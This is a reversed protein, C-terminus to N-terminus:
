FTLRGVLSYSGITTTASTFRVAGSLTASGSANAFRGTGGAASEIGNLSLGQASPTAVGVNTTHLEDGNAATYVTTNTYAIGSAGPVITQLALVSARGIHALQCYGTIRLATESMFEAVVNCSGTWPREVNPSQFERAPTDSLDAQGTIGDGSCGALTLFLFTSVGARRQLRKM